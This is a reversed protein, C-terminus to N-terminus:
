YQCHEFQLAATIHSDLVTCDLDLHGALSPRPHALTPPQDVTEFRLTRCVGGDLRVGPKRLTHLDAVIAPGSEAASHSLDLRSIELRLPADPRVYRQENVYHHVRPDEWVFVVISTSKDPPRGDFPDRSCGEPRARWRGLGGGDSAMTGHINFFDLGCGALGPAAVLSLLLAAPLLPRRTSPPLTM